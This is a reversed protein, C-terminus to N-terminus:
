VPFLALKFTKYPHEVFKSGSVIIGQTSSGSLGAIIITKWTEGSIKTNMRDQGLPHFM